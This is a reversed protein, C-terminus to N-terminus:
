PIVHKWKCYLLVHQALTDAEKFSLVKYEASLQM